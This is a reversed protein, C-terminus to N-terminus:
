HPIANAKTIDRLICPGYGVFCYVYLWCMMCDIHWVTVTDDLCLPVTAFACYYSWWLFDRWIGRHMFILLLGLVELMGQFDVSSFDLSTHMNHLVFVRCAHMTKLPEPPRWARLTRFCRWLTLERKRLQGWTPGNVFAIDMGGTMPCPECSLTVLGFGHAEGTSGRMLKATDATLFCMGIAGGATKNDFYDHSYCCLVDLDLCHLAIVFMVWLLVNLLKDNLYILYLIRRSVPASSWSILFAERYSLLTLKKFTGNVREVM